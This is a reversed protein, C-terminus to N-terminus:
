DTLVPTSPDRGWQGASSCFWPKSLQPISSGTAQHFGLPIDLEELVDMHAVASASQMASRRNTPVYETPVYEPM